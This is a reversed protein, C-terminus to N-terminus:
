QAGLCEEPTIHSISHCCPVAPCRDQLDVVSTIPGVGGLMVSADTGGGSFAVCLSNSVSFLPTSLSPLPAGKPAEASYLMVGELPFNIDFCETQRPIIAGGRLSCSVSTITRQGVVSDGHAMFQCQQVLSVKINKLKTKRSLNNFTLSVRLPHSMPLSYITGNGAATGGGDKPDPTTLVAIGHLTAQAGAAASPDANLGCCGGEVVFNVRQPPLPVLERSLLQHQTRSVASEVIFPLETTADFGNPIDVIGRLFYQLKATGSYLSCFFSPPAGAPIEIQFPYTYTGVELGAGGKRGSIKSFGFFTILHEFHTFSEERKTKSSGKRAVFSVEEKGRALLRIATITIEKVAKVTLTGSIARGPLVTSQEVQISLSVKSKDFFM